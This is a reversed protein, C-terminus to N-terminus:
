AVPEVPLGLKKAADLMDDAARDLWGGPQDVQQTWCVPDKCGCATKISCIPCRENGQEDPTMLGLGLVRLSNGWIANHAGMLPDFAEKPADTGKQAAELSTQLRKAGEEGSTAVLPWLGRKKIGEKLQEWHATCMKM